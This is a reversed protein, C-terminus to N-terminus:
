GQARVEACIQAWFWEEDLVDDLPADVYRTTVGERTAHGSFTAPGDHPEVLTGIVLLIPSGNAGQVDWIVGDTIIDRTDADGPVDFPESFRVNTAITVAAPGSPSSSFEDADNTRVKRDYNLYDHNYFRTGYRHETRNNFLPVGCDLEDVPGWGTVIHREGDCVPGTVKLKCTWPAFSENLTPVLRSEDVEGSSAATPGALALPALVAALAVLAARGPKKRTVGNGLAAASARHTAMAASAKMILAQPRIRM